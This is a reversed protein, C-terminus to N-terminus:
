NIYLLKNNKDIIIKNLSLYILKAFSTSEIKLPNIEIYQLIKQYEHENRIIRDYYNYKFYPHVVRDGKESAVIIGHIHNPM